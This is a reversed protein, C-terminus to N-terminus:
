SASNIINLAKEKNDSDWYEAFVSEVFAILGLGHRQQLAQDICKFQAKTKGRLVEFIADDDDSKLFGFHNVSFSGEAEILKDADLEANEYGNCKAEIIAATATTSNTSSSGTDQQIAQHVARYLEESRQRRRYGAYVLYGGGALGILFIIIWYEKKMKM